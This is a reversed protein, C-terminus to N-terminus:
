IPNLTRRYSGALVITLLVIFYFLIYYLAYDLSVNQGMDNQSLLDYGSLMGGLYRITTEFVSVQTDTKSYDLKSVHELITKVIEPSDM